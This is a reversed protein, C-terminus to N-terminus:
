RKNKQRMMGTLRPSEKTTMHVTSFCIKEINNNLEILANYQCCKSSRTLARDVMTALWSGTSCQCSSIFSEEDAPKFGFRRLIKNVTSVSLFIGEFRELHEKLKRSGLFMNSKKVEVVRDQIEAPVEKPTTKPVPPRDELGELGHESYRQRWRRFVSRSLNYKDCVSTITAGESEAEQLVKLKFEKSYKRHTKKAESM